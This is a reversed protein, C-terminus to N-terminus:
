GLADIIAQAAATLEDAQAQTIKKGAQAAVQNLFAQLSDRAAAEDGATLAALAANLKALLANEIGHPLDYSQVTENLNEVMEAPTPAAPILSIASVVIDTFGLIMYDYSVTTSISEGAKTSGLSHFLTTVDSQSWRLTQGAAPGIITNPVIQYYGLVGVVVDGVNSNVSISATGNGGIQTHMSYSDRVPTAQDVGFFSVSGGIIQAVASSSCTVVVDATGVPPAVLTWIEAPPFATNDSIQQELPVGAYTVSSASPLLNGNLTLSVVLIRNNGDGVTHAWRATAGEGRGSAAADFVIDARASPASGLWFTTFLVLMKVLLSLKTKNV